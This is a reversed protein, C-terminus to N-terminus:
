PKLGAAKRAKATAEYQSLDARIPDPTDEEKVGWKGGIRQYAIWTGKPGRFRFSTAHGLLAEMQELRERASEEGRRFMESHEREQRIGNQMGYNFLLGLAVELVGRDREESYALYEKQFREDATAADGAKMHQPTDYGDYEFEKLETRKWTYAQRLLKLIPKLLDTFPITETKDEPWPKSM